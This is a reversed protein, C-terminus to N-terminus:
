RKRYNTVFGGSYVWFETGSVSLNWSDDSSDIELPLVKRETQPAQVGAAQMLHRYIIARVNEDEPDIDIGFLEGMDVLMGKFATGIAEAQREAIRVRREEIGAALATRVITALHRREALYIELWMAGAQSYDGMDVEENRVFGSQRKFLWLSRVFAEPDSMQIQQGLWEIHGATRRIEKLLVEGADRDNSPSGYIPGAVRNGGGSNHGGSASGVAREPSGAVPKLKRAMDQLIGINGSSLGISPSKVPNCPESISATHCLVRLAPQM